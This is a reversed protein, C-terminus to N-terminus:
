AAARVGAEVSLQAGVMGTAQPDASGGTARRVPPEDPHLMGALAISGVFSLGLISARISHGGADYGLLLEAAFLCAVFAVITSSVLSRAASSLQPLARQQGLQSGLSSPTAM